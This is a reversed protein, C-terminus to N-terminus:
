QPRNVPTFTNFEEALPQQKDINVPRQRSKEQLKRMFEYRRQSVMESQADDKLIVPHIFVM